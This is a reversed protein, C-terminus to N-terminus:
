VKRGAQLRQRIEANRWDTRTYLVEYDIMEAAEKVPYAQVGEKNAVDSTFLVDDWQLVDPHVMLFISDAIRGETRAVFEM